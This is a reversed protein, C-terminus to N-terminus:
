NLYLEYVTFNVGNLTYFETTKTCEYLQAVIVTVESDKKDDLFSLGYVNATV